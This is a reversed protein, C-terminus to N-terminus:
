EFPRALTISPLEGFLSKYEGAFRGFEWFGYRAAVETVTTANPASDRLERRALHMRRLLLYRKPSVGLQEQCCVQLTRHSVGIATCLEPIFIAQDPKEEVAARFRRMILNHQRLASRDEGIQGTGLCGVMAEILAQELGHAAEPHDIVAPAHEALQGAAAHLDRLKALASPEPTHSRMDRPPMLDCGAVAGVSAIGEIPVSMSGYSAFGSSRRFYEQADSHRIVNHLHMESGAVFLGSGPQTRFSIVARGPALAYHGVRPLNESCRLMWVFHLDIRTFKADLRGQGTITLQAKTGRVAAAYDDPDTFTRVTSSPLRGDRKKARQARVGLDMAEGRENIQTL